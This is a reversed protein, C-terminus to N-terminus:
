RVNRFGDSKRRRSLEERELRAQKEQEQPKEKEEEWENKGSLDAKVWLWLRKLWAKM